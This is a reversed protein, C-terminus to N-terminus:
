RRIQAQTKLNDVKQKWIDPEDDISPWLLPGDLEMPPVPIPGLRDCMVGMDGLDMVVALM